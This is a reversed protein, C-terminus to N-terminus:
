DGERRAQRYEAIRLVIISIEYLGIMPVLLMSMTYADPTPTLIATFIASLLIAYRRSSALFAISVLDLRHLIRAVLPLEFIVGCAASLGLTLSLYKSVSIGAAINPGGFGLLFKLTVPLIVLYCFGVGIAFLGAAVGAGLWASRAPFRCVRQLFRQLEYLMLPSTLIVGAAVAVKLHGLFGELPAYMVLPADGLPQKVVHLLFAAFPYAALTAAVLTIVLRFVRRRIANIQGFLGTTLISPQTEMLAEHAQALFPSVATATHATWM